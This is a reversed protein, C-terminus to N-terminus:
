MVHKSLKRNWKGVGGIDQGGLKMNEIIQPKPNTTKNEGRRSECKRKM